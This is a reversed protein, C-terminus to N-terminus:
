KMRNHLRVKVLEFRCLPARDITLMFHESTAIMAAKAVM